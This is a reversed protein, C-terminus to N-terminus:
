VDAVLGLLLLLLLFHLPRAMMTQLAAGWAATLLHHLLAL